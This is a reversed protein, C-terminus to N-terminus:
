ATAKLPQQGSTATFNDIVGIPELRMAQLQGLLKSLDVDSTEQPDRVVVVADIMNSRPTGATVFSAPGKSFSGADLLLIDAHQRVQEFAEAAQKMQESDPPVGISSCLPLVVVPEDIARVAVDAAQVKGSLAEEWGTRVNLRLQNGLDPHALNADILAVKRKHALLSKTLCLSVTTTGVAASAGLVAITKSGAEATAKLLKAANAFGASDGGTIEEVISPWALQEVEWRAQWTEAAREVPVEKRLSDIEAERKPEPVNIQRSTTETPPPAASQDAEPQRKTTEEEAPLTPTAPEQVALLEALSETSIASAARVTSGATVLVAPLHTRPEVHYAPSDIRFTRGDHLRFQRM